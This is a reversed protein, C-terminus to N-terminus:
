VDGGDSTGSSSALAASLLDRVVAARSVGQAEARRDLEAVQDPELVASVQEGAVGAVPPRGRRIPGTHDLLWGRAAHWSCEGAPHAPIEYGRYRVPRGHQLEGIATRQNTANLM